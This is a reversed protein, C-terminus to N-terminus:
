KKNETSLIQLDHLMISLMNYIRYKIAEIFLFVGWLSYLVHLLVIKM